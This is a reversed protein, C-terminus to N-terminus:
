PKVDESAASTPLASSSSLFNLIFLLRCARGCLLGIAFGSAMGTLLVMPVSSARAPDVVEQYGLFYKLTFFAMSIVLLKPSGPVVISRGDRGPMVRSYDFLLVAVMLGLLLGGIWSGLSTLPHTNYNMALLAWSLFIAPSILLSRRTETSPFCARVGYYLLLVFAAYVWHPTERLISLM